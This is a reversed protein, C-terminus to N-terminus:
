GPAGAPEKMADCARDSPVPGFHDGAVETGDYGSMMRCREVGPERDWSGKM